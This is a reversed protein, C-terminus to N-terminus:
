FLVCLNQTFNSDGEGDNNNKRNISLMNEMDEQSIGKAEDLMQKIKKEKIGTESVIQYGTGLYYRVNDGRNLRLRDKITQGLIGDLALLRDRSDERHMRSISDDLYELTKLYLVAERIEQDNATESTSLEYGKKARKQLNEIKKEVGRHSILLHKKYQASLLTFCQKEFQTMLGVIRYDSGSGVKMKPEVFDKEQVGLIEALLTNEIANM